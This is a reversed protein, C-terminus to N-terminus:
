EHEAQWYLVLHKIAAHQVGQSQSGVIERERYKTAALRRRLDVLEGEPVHIRFPKIDSAPAASAPCRTLLNSVGAAVAGKAMAGLLERRDLNAPKLDTQWSM